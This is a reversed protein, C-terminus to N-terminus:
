ATANTEGMLFRYWEEPVNDLHVGFGTKEVTRMELSVTRTWAVRGRLYLINQPLTEVQLVLPQGIVELRSTVLFLGLPSIDSTFASRYKEDDAARFRVLLRRKIRPMRRREDTM